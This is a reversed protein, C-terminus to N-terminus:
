GRRPGPPTPTRRKAAREQGRSRVEHMLGRLPIGNRFPFRVAHHNGRVVLSADTVTPDALLMYGVPRPLGDFYSRFFSVHAKSPFVQPSLRGWGVSGEVGLRMVFVGREVLATAAVRLLRMREPRSVNVFVLREVVAGFGGARVRRLSLADGRIVEVRSRGTRLLSCRRM